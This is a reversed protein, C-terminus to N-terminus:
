DLADLLRLDRDRRPDAM